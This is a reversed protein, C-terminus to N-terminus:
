YKKDKADALEIRVLAKHLAIEARAVNINPDQMQMHREARVKAELARNLDIEDPWEAEEALIRVRNQLIEMFGSHIAAERKGEEDSIVVIGPELITTLPIHGRYIGIQGETTNVEVMAAKGQFFIRDPSIIELDFYKDDAM